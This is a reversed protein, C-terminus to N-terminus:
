GPDRLAKRALCSVHDGEDGGRSRGYRAARSGRREAAFVLGRCESWGVRGTPCARAATWAARRLVIRMTRSSSTSRPLRRIV